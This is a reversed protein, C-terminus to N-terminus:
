RRMPLVTDPLCAGIVDAIRNLLQGRPDGKRFVLRVTRNAGGDADKRFIIGADTMWGGQLSMAPVLTVGEGAAVLALLTGLSTNQTNAGEGQSPGTACFSLVQDRLCHGDSLLLLEGEDIGSLVPAEDIALAHGRPVALWFPEDYLVLSDLQPPPLTATVAIDLDGDAVAAELHETMDERLGLTLDPLSHRLLPLLRPTLYPGITHIMGLRMHGGFPDALAKATEEIMRARGLMDKALRIIKEGAETIRVRKNTREFLIVGLHDELKRIQGSLAPQSVNCQAAAKGFHAHEAVAVVYELDRINM